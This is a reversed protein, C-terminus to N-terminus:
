AGVHRTEEAIQNELRQRFDAFYAAWDEIGQITEFVPTQRLSSIEQMLSQRKHRLRQLASRLVDAETVKDIGRGAFGGQELAAILDRMRALDNRLQAAKIEQFRLSAEAKFEPAVADPHCLKTGQRFLKKLEHQEAASLVKVQDPQLRDEHLQRFDDEAEDREAATAKGAKFERECRRRRLNLLQEMLEGLERRFRENYALLQRDLVAKEEELSLVEEEIAAVESRLRVVEPDEYSILGKASDM